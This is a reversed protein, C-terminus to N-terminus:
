GDSVESGVLPRLRTLARSLRSKVTGAPCDMAVAMEAENLGAFYRLAVVTRDREDLRRLADLLAGADLDALVTADPEAGTTAPLAAAREALRVRRGAARRRNRAENAVIRVLWPRVPSDSRFGGFARYAKLLGEQLADEAEASSGCIIYAVRLATASHRRALDGFAVADGRRAREVLEVEDDPRDV